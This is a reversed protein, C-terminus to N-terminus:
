DPSTELSSYIDPPLELLEIIRQQLSNLESVHGFEQDNVKLITLTLPKFASLIREATPRPTTRKPNGAFLGFLKEDNEQLRRQIVFEILTLIRLGLSLLHMLGQAQDDRQVFLPCAGLPKGKLRSFGREHIWADRITLVAQAFCLHEIPANTVYVRWGFTHQAQEIATAIPNVKTIQYRQKQRKRAPQFEYYYELLGEVQHTKLIENAQQQLQALDRIQRKGRGATPTLAQLKETARKLRQELGRQQQRAHAPSFVLLVRETWQLTSGDAQKAEQERTFEYGMAMEKPEGNNEDLRSVRLQSWRQQTADVLSKLLLEPVKGTRALPTLYYHQQAHIQARTDLAGMKCDGVWLLSEGQFSQSVEEFIPLYLGDDAKEGSVIHTALPMGLPDLSAVMTKLHPLSPDDKSHGFQFLGDESILHHSSVTTADLRICNSPLRYLEITQRNLQTEIGQWLSAESLKSLVIGLRDDTFDTERLTLGCVQAIMTSRENVWERVVVKRHDGESLIYALWIVIVWGWDLGEQKWHRPLQRNLLEPLGIQMMVNLLLVVDDIRETIVTLQNEM